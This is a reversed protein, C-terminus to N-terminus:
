MPQAHENAIAAAVWQNQKTLEKTVSGHNAAVNFAMGTCLM